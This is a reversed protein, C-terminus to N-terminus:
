SFLSKIIFSKMFNTTQVSPLSHTHGRPRLDYIQSAPSPPPLLQNLCDGDSQVKSFLRSDSREVEILDEMSDWYRYHGMKPGKKTSCQTQRHQFNRLLEALCVWHSFCGSCYFCCQSLVYWSGTKKLQHLLQHCIFDASVLAWHLFCLCLYMRYSLKFFLPSFVFLCSQPIPQLFTKNIMSSFM